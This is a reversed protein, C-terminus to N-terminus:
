DAHIMVDGPPPGLHRFLLDDTLKRESVLEGNSKSLRPVFPLRQRAVNGIGDSEIRRFYPVDNIVIPSRGSGGGDDGEDAILVNAAEPKGSLM